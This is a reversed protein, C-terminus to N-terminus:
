NDYMSINISYWYWFTMSRHPLKVIYVYVFPLHCFCVCFLVFYGFYLPVYIPWHRIYLTDSRIKFAYNIYCALKQLLYVNNSSLLDFLKFMSCTPRKWYYSPIVKKRLNLAGTRWIKSSFWSIHLYALIDGLICIMTSKFWFYRNLSM